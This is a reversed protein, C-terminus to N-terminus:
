MFSPVYTGCSGSFGAGVELDAKWLEYGHKM